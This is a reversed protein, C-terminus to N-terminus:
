AYLDQGLGVGASRLEISLPPALHSGVALVVVDEEANDFALTYDLKEFQEGRYIEIPRNAVLGNEDAVIHRATVFLTTSAQNTIFATGVWSECM